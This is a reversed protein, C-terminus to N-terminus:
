NLIEGQLAKTGVTRANLKFVNYVAFKHGGVTFGHLPSSGCVEYTKRKPMRNQRSNFPKLRTVLASKANWM